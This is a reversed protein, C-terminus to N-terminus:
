LIYKDFTMTENNWPTITATATIYNVNVNVTIEYVTNALFEIDNVPKFTVGTISNFNDAATGNISFSLFITGQSITQPPILFAQSTCAAITTASGTTSICKTGNSTADTAGKKPEITVTKKVNCVDFNTPMNADTLSGTPNFKVIVKAMRHTMPLDVGKGSSEPQIIQETALLDSGIINAEMTQDTSVSFNYSVDNSSGAPYFAFIYASKDDSSPYLPPSLTGDKIRLDSQCTEPNSDDTTIYVLPLTVRPQPTVDADSLVATGTKDYIFVDILSNQPLGTEHADAAMTRTRNGDKEVKVTSFVIPTGKHIGDAETTDDDSCALFVLLAAM